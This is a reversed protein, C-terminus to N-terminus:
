ISQGPVSIRGPDDLDARFAKALADIRAGFSKIESVYREIEIGDNTVKGGTGNGVGCLKTISREHAQDYRRVPAVLLEM